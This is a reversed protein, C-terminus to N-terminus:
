RSRREHGKWGHQCCSNCEEGGGTPLIVVLSSEGESLARLGLKQEQSRFKAGEGLFGELAEQMDMEIDRKIKKALRILATLSQRAEGDIEGKSTLSLLSHWRNTVKEFKTISRDSLSKLIDGRIGYVKYATTTSHSAQLDDPDEDDPDMGDTLGRVHRRDIAVVIHRYDATTIRFGM